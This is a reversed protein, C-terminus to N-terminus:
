QLQKAMQANITKAWKEICQLEGNLQINKESYYFELKKEKKQPDSPIFSLELRDVIRYNGDKSNITRGTNVLKCQQVEALDIHQEEIKGKAQKYFFVHKKNEDIGIAFDGCIEYQSIQCAQQNALNTLSQLLQKTRQKNSQGMVVFPAVCIAVIIAGILTTGFDM